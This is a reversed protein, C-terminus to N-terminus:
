PATDRVEVEATVAGATAFELTIDFREGTTLPDALGVLM